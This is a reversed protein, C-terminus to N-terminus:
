AGGLRRGERAARPGRRQQAPAVARSEIVRRNARLEERVAAEGEDIARRLVAVEHLKQEAFALWSRLEPELHQERSADIPVHQLSSSTSVMLRDSSVGGDAQLGRLLILSERLDSTWVNRGDVMGAALWKDQPYGHQRILDLNRCGRVLDLGVGDVPLNVLTSYSEGVHGFATHVLLRASGKASGLLSYAAGIAALEEPTRDQVLALEDLQIWAAGEAALRSIVQTYVPALRELLARFPVPDGEPTKSLFLFTAPGVLVVKPHQVGAARADALEAFPKESALKFRQDATLEPVIYHYNTDFWKTMDLARVGREGSRGRAMAFYTDLDVNGGSRGYKAPVAGLLVATDLVQDYLTFDNVPVLDIGAEAQTRWNERRLESAASLMDPEGIKGSWYDELAKKMERKKGIRPYGPITALTM